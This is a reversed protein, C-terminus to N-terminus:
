PERGYARLAEEVEKDSLVNGNEDTFGERLQPFSHMRYRIPVYTDSEGAPMDANLPRYVTKGTEEKPQFHYEGKAINAKADKLFAKANFLPKPKVYKVTAKLEVQKGCPTQGFSVADWEVQGDKGNAVTASIPYNQDVYDHDTGSHFAGMNHHSHIVGLCNDPVHFPEAEASAATVRAHPPVVIDEVCFVEEQQKGVMYALWEQHKYEEMLLEMKQRPVAEVYLVPSKCLSCTVSEHTAKNGGVKWGSM